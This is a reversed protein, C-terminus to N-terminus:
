GNEADLAAQILEAANTAAEQVPIQGEFAPTLAGSMERSWAATNKSRPIPYAEAVADTFPSVDIVDAFHDVFLQDFEPYATFGIGSTAYIKAADPSGLFQILKLSEEPHKADAPMMNGLSSTSTENTGASGHPYSAVGISGSEALPSDSFTLSMWSGDPHMAAKGSLFLSIPDTESLQALTPASGAAIIDTWFSIGDVAKSSDIEAETADDNIISGGENHIAAGYTARSDLDATTGWVGAGPDTLAAAAEAYDDTSWDASPYDVGAADFLDKNYWIAIADRNNPFSYLEGDWTYLGKMTDPIDAASVDDGDTVPALVGESAYIPFNQPNSWFVDPLTGNAAETQRKTWYDQFALVQTEVTVGPNQKEFEDFMERFIPEQTTDWMAYTLSVNEATGGQEGTSGSCGALALAAVASLAMARATRNKM